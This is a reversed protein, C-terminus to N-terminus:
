QNVCPQFQRPMDVQSTEATTARRKVLRGPWNTPGSPLRAPPVSMEQRDAEGERDHEVEGQESQEGLRAGHVSRGSGAEDPRRIGRHRRDGAAALLDDGFGGRGM